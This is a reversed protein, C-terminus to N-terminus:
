QGLGMRRFRRRLVVVIIGIRDLPQAAREGSLAARAEVAIQEGDSRTAVRLHHPVDGAGDEGRQALDRGALPREQQSGEPGPEVIAAGGTPRGADQETMGVRDPVPHAPEFLEGSAGQRIGASYGFQAEGEFDVAPVAAM